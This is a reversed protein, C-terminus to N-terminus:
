IRDLLTAAFLDAARQNEGIYLMPEIAELEMLIFHGDRLVGDVRAYLLDEDVCQLAQRAQAILEPSCPEQAWTGGHEDQVRFDGTKPRKVAAHSFEGGFFVISWEGELIEPMFEQIMMDRETLLKALEADHDESDGHSVVWTNMSTGSITPKVVAKRWNRAALVEQISLTSNRECWFTPAIAIGRQELDRLYKKDHNWRLTPLANFVKVGLSQLKDLWAVFQDPSYFYDWCSRVVIADYQTWDAAPDDWIVGDVRVGRRRLAEAVLADDPAIGNLQRYTVFAVSSM